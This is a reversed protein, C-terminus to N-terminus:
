QREHQAQITIESALNTNPGSWLHMQTSPTTFVMHKLLDILTWPPLNQIRKKTRLVIIAKYKVFSYRTDAIM